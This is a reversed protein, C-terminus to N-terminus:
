SISMSMDFNDVFNTTPMGRLLFNPSFKIALPSVNRLMIIVMTNFRCRCFATGKTFKSWDSTLYLENSIYGFQAMQPSSFEVKLELRRGEREREREGGRRSTLFFTWRYRVGRRRQREAYVEREAGPVRMSAMVRAKELVV